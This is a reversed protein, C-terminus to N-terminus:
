RGDPDHADPEISRVDEEWALSEPRDRGVARDSVITGRRPSVTM